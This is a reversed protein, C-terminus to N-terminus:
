VFSAIFVFKYKNKINDACKQASKKDKFIGFVASGSGSMLAGLAGNKVLMEKIKEVEPYLPVLVHEFANYLSSSLSTIDGNQLANIINASNFTSNTKTKDFQRYAWKTNVSFNPKVIVTYAKVSNDIPTLIEGRGNALCTGKTFFFPVDSGLQAGMRELREKCLGTEYMRNLGDLVAAADSSGGGMGAGVPINKNIIIKVGGGIKFTKFFLDAARHVINMSDTPLFAVNTEISIKKASTLIIEDYLAVTQMITEINHFGDSRKGLIDLTLNIKAPTKIKVADVGRCLKVM